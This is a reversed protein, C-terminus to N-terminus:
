AMGVPGHARFDAHVRGGKHVLAQLDDLGATQEAQRRRPHFHHDMGLADDMGQGAVMVSRKHGMQPRRVHAHGYGVTQAIGVTQGQPERWQVQHGQPAQTELGRAVVDKRTQLQGSPGQFQPRPTRYHEVRGVLDGHFEKQGFPDGKQVDGTQDGPRQVGRGPNVGAIRISYQLNVASWSPPGPAPPRCTRRPASAPPRDYRM